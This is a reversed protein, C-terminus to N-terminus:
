AELQAALSRGLAVPDSGTAQVRRLSGDSQEACAVAVLTDGDVWAHAAAPVNCGGGYAALFAREVACARTTPGHAIGALVARLEADDTRCQVALAGQGVAPVMQEVSFCHADPRVIGLRNMGARALITSQYQGEDRKRLRTEVNGRIDAVELDPRLALLQARRRLSGTGVRAGEPLADLALGVLCDRPDEREPIAGICLGEPDDTPLDKLSHVALDLSGDRLGEELELTFLGKGGLEALPRSRDRDGRTSVIQLRVPLGSAATIAAAVMKSQAVALASGRTGLVLERPATM